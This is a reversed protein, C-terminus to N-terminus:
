ERGGFMSLQKLTKKGKRFRVGGPPLARSKINVPSTKSMMSLPIFIQLECGGLRDRIGNALFDSMSISYEVGDPKEIFVVWSIGAAHLREAERADLGYGAYKWVYHKSRIVDRRFADGIIVGNTVGSSTRFFKKSQPLSKEYM